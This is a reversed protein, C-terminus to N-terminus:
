LPLIADKYQILARIWSVIGITLRMGTARPLYNTVYDVGPMIVGQSCFRRRQENDKKSRMNNLLNLFYMQM